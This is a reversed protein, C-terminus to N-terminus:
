GEPQGDNGASDGAQHGVPKELFDLLQGAGVGPTIRGEAVGRTVPELHERVRPHHRLRGRLGQDILTWMWSVAQQQRKADLQGTSTMIERHSEVEAWFAEIGADLAPGTQRAPAARKGRAQVYATASVALVPCRWGSVTGDLLALASTFQQRTREAAPPDIDAKTIVVLDALEIIGRKMAQIEDGANPLQLLVFVDVMGAVATESQGVGVTEVLVVDFRASECVLLAERTREAVGGLAGASPSPRIFAEPVQALEAMRMKDGLISGGSRSSSPDVALVAVRRGCGILFLGLAEIFTSKGV